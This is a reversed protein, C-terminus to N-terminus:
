LSFICGRGHDTRTWSSGPNEMSMNTLHRDNLFPRQPSSVYYLTRRVRVARPLLSNSMQDSANKERPQECIELVRPIILAVSCIGCQIWSPPKVKFSTFFFFVDNLTFGALFKWKLTDGRPEKIIRKKLVHATDNANQMRVHMHVWM